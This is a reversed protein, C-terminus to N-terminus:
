EKNPSSPSSAPEKLQALYAAMAKIDGESLRDPKKIRGHQRTGKQFSNLQNILYWDPQKNLPPVRQSKDGIAKEGHCSQCNKKYKAAQSATDKFDVTHRKAPPKLNQIYRGLFAIIRDDLGMSVQHMLQGSADAKDNGREGSRFKRLQDSIYWRPLGAISPAKMAVNGHGTLQHCASCNNLFTVKGPDEEAQITSLLTLFLLLLPRM